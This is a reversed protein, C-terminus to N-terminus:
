GRRRMTPVSRSFVSVSRLRHPPSRSHPLARPDNETAERREHVAYHSARSSPTLTLFLSGYCTHTTDHKTCSSPTLSLFLSVMAHTTHKLLTANSACNIVM